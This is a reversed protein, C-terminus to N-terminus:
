KIGNAKRKYVYFYKGRIVKLAIYFSSEKKMKQFTEVVSRPVYQM